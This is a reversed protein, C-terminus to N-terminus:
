FGRILLLTSTNLLLVCAMVKRRASLSYLSSLSVARKCPARLIDSKALAATNFLTPIGAPLEAISSSRLERFRRNSTKSSASRSRRPRITCTSLVRALLALLLIYNVRALFLLQVAFRLLQ